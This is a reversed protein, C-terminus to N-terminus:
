KSNRSPRLICEDLFKLAKDVESLNTKGSVDKLRKRADKRSQRLESETLPRCKFTGALIEDLIRFADQVMKDGGPESLKPTLRELREIRFKRSSVTM